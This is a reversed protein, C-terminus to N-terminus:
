LCIRDFNVMHYKNTFVSTASCSLLSKKLRVKKFVIFKIQHFYSTLNKKECDKLFLKLDSLKESSIKNFQQLRIIDYTSNKNSFVKTM